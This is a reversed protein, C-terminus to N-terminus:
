TIPTNSWEPKIQDGDAKFTLDATVMDELGENRSFNLVSFTGHLGSYGADTLPGGDMIYLEIATDNFFADQITDFYIPPTASQQWPMASTVESNKLGSLATAWGENLRSSSEVENKSLNLTSDILDIETFDAADFADGIAGSVRIYTKCQLGTRKGM